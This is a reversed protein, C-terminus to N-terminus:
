KSPEYNEGVIKEVDLARNKWYSLAHKTSELQESLGRPNDDYYNGYLTQWLEKYPHQKQQRAYFRTENWWRNLKHFITSLSPIDTFMKDSV